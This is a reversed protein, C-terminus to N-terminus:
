EAISSWTQLTAQISDCLSKLQPLEQGGSMSSIRRPVSRVTLALGTTIGPVQKLKEMELMDCVAKLCTTTEDMIEQATYLSNAEGVTNVLSLVEKLQCTVTKFAEELRNFELYMNALIKLSDLSQKNRLVLDELFSLLRNRLQSQPEIKDVLLRIMNVDPHDSRDLSLSLKQEGRLVNQWDQARASILTYNEWFQWAQPSLRVAEAAANKAEQIFETKFESYVASLNVWGQVHDPNVNVCRVFAQIAKDKEEKRLHISGLKFWIDDFLPNIELSLQFCKAAEDMNSERLYSRGLSRMARANKHGSMEWAEQYYSAEGTMDGKAVLLRANLPELSDLLDLAEQKRGAVSLCDMALPWMELKKFMEFATMVMGVEMMRVGNERQLEWVSPYGTTHLHRLRIEASPEADKFQDVLADTQFCARGRTNTKFFEYRSRFLLCMSFVIWSPPAKACTSIVRMAIAHVSELNLEDRSSGSYFYRLGEVVLCAQEIASLKSTLESEERTSESFQVDELMDTTMDYDVLALARPAPVSPQDEEHPSTSKVRCALQAFSVTQFQRRIGEVGTVSMEIGLMDTVHKLIPAILQTKGYYALRVLLEIILESRLEQDLSEANPLSLPVTIESSELKPLHSLTEAVLTEPLYGFRGLVQCFDNVCVQMLSPANGQGRDNSDGLVRQWVFVARAYWGGPSNLDTHKCLFKFMSLSAVLLEPHICGTYVSEGNIQLISRADDEEFLGASIATSSLAPGTWNAQLFQNFCQIGFRLLVEPGDTIGGVVDVLSANDLGEGPLIKTILERYREEIEDSAWNGRLYVLERESSM